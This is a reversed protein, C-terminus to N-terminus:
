KVVRLRAPPSPSTPQISSKIFNNEDSWGDAGGDYNVQWWTIGDMQVPGALISGLTGQTQIGVLTAALSGSARVDTIKSAEIRNSVLFKTAPTITGGEGGRYANWMAIVFPTPVGTEGAGLATGKVMVEQWYRDHYDFTAPSNWVSEAGMLRAALVSGILSWGNTGRYPSSWQSGATRHENGFWEPIGIMATTYMEQPAQQDSAWIKANHLAREANLEIDSQKVYAHGGDEQFYHTGAKSIIDADDLIWGALVVPLKKGVHHGGDSWWGGGVSLAGYLDIGRQIMRILLTEKQADTYNLNLLLAAESNKLSIERGYNTEDHARPLLYNSAFGPSQVIFAKEFQPEMEAFTPTNTVNTLKKLRDYRLQSKNWRISKNSGGIYPPRFSGPYPTSELVTLIAITDLQAKNGSQYEIFSKASMMSDGVVATYPLQKAINLSDHYSTDCGAKWDIRGDWAQVPNWLPIGTTNYVPNVMTGNIDKGDATAAPPNISIITVPGVVWWDGNAFQGVTRDQSFTWTIGYQSVSTAGDVPNLSGFFSLVVPLIFASALVRTVKGQEGVPRSAKCIMNNELQM